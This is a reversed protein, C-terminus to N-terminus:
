NTEYDNLTKKIVTKLHIPNFPKRIVGEISYPLEKLKQEFGESSSLIIFPIKNYLGSTKIITIFCAGSIYPLQYESIILIPENGDHIWKLAEVPSKKLVLNYDKSLFNYLLKVMYKEEDVILIQRNASSKKHTNAKLNDTKKSILLIGIGKKM